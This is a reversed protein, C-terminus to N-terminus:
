FGEKELFEIDAQVLGVMSSQRWREIDLWQEATFTLEKTDSPIKSLMRASEMLSGSNGNYSWPPFYYDHFINKSKRMRERLAEQEDDYQKLKHHNYADLRSTLTSSADMFERVHAWVDKSISEYPVTITQFGASVTM